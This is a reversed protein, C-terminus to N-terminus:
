KIKYNDKNRFTGKIIGEITTHSVGYLEALKRYSIKTVPNNKAGKFEKNGFYKEKIEQVQKNSLKAYGNYEGQRIFKISLPTLNSLRNDTSIGNIHKIITNKDNIDFTKHNFAYYVLRSKNIYTYKTNDGRTIKIKTNSIIKEGKLNLISGDEYITYGWLIAKRM